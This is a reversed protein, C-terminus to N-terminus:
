YILLRSIKDPAVRYRIGEIIDVINQIEIKSIFVYSLLVLDTNNSFSINRKNYNYFISKTHYEIYM